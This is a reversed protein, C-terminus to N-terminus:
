RCNENIKYNSNASISQFSIPGTIFREMLFRDTPKIDAELPPIHVRHLNKLAARMTKYSQFYFATVTNQDFSKLDLDRTRFTFTSLREKAKFAHKTEVFFLAEQQEQILLRPGNHTHVWFRLEMQLELDSKTNLHNRKSDRWQRTLIFGHDLATPLNNQQM